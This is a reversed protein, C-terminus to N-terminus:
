AAAEAADKVAEYDPEAGPDDSVWKYTIEGSADVVFVARKAVGEYGFDSFSM